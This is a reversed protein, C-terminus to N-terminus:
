AQRWVELWKSRDGERKIAGVPCVEACVGCGVCLAPDIYAKGGPAKSIARCKLVNYCIGCSVCRDVDVFYRPLKVGNRRAKRVAMLTCPRGSVVVAPRGSKVVEAAKKVAEISAKVYVPDVVFAPIGFAETIKEVPLIRSPSPQGGTMATYANDM